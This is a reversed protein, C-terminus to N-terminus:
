QARILPLHIFRVVTDEPFQRALEGARVEAENTEGSLALVLAAKCRADRSTLLSPAAVWRRAERLNGFLAERLAADAQHGQSSEKKDLRNAFAVARQSLERAKRLRGSYAAVDAAYTLFITEAGPKGKAWAELRAMAPSDNELFALKYLSFRLN